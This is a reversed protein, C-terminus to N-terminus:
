VLTLSPHKSPPTYKCKLIEKKAKEEDVLVPSVHGMFFGMTVDLRIYRTQGPDLTFSVARTVETSARIKYDGPEKDLYILGQPVAKCVKEGNLFVDPQIAAGFVATRYIYIRGSDPNLDPLSGQMESFKTGSACGTIVVSLFLLALVNLVKKM